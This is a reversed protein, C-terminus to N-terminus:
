GPQETVNAVRASLIRGPREPTPRLEIQLLAGQELRRTTRLGVGGPAIDVLQTVWQENEFHITAQSVATGNCPFRVWARGNAEEARIRRARFAVLEEDSLESAIICGVLWKGAPQPTSHVVRALVTRSFDEEQRDLQFALITGPEFRREMRLGVGTAS